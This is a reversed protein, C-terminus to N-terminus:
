AVVKGFKERAGTGEGAQGGGMQQGPMVKYVQALQDSLCFPTSFQTCSIAPWDGGAVPPSQLRSQANALQTQWSIM